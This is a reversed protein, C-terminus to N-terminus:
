VDIFKFILFATRDLFLHIPLNGIPSESEHSCTLHFCSCYVFRGNKSQIIGTINGTM